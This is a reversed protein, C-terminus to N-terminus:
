PTDSRAHNLATGCPDKSRATRNWAAQALISLGATIVAAGWDSNAIAFDRGTISRVYNEVTPKLFSLDALVLWLSGAGIVIILAAFATLMLRTWSM